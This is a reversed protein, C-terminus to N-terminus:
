SLQYIILVSLAVSCITAAIKYIRSKNITLFYTISGLLGGLGGFIGAYIMRMLGEDGLLEGANMLILVPLLTMLMLWIQNEDLKKKKTM